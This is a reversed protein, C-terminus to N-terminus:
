ERDENINKTSREKKSERLVKMMLQTLGTQTFPKKLYYRVGKSIATAVEDRTAVATVMIVPTSSFRRDQLLHQFFEIGDMEPMDWDLLILDFSRNNVTEFLLTELGEKGNKTFTPKFFSGELYEQIIELNTEDDDIVLVKREAVKLKENRSM